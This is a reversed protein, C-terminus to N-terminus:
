LGENLIADLAANPDNTDGGVADIVDDITVDNGTERVLVPVAEYDALDIKVGTVKHRMEVIQKWGKLVRQQSASAFYKRILDGSGPAKADAVKALKEIHPKMQVAGVKGDGYEVKGGLSACGAAFTLMAAAAAGAAMRKTNM